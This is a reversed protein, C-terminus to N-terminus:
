IPINSRVDCEHETAIRSTTRNGDFRNGGVGGGKASNEFGGAVDGRVSSVESRFFGGRRRGPSGLSDASEWSSERPLGNDRVDAPLAEM